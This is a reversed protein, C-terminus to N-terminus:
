LLLGREQAFAVPHKASKELNCAACCLQLNDRRDPGNLALPMIHDVHRNEPTLKTPCYACRGRQLRMLEAILRKKKAAKRAKKKANFKARNAKRYARKEARCKERNAKRWNRLLERYREPNAERWAKNRASAFCRNFRKRLAVFAKRQEVILRKAARKEAVRVSKAAVGPARRARMKEDKRRSSAAAKEPNERRWRAAYERGRRRATEVDRWYRGRQYAPDRPYRIHAVHECERCCGSKTRRESLHGHKCPKGTSYWEVGAAIAHRRKM